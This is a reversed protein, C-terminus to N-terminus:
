TELTSLMFIPDYDAIQEKFEAELGDALEL